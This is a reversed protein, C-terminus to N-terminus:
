MFTLIKLSTATYIHVHGQALILSTLHISVYKRENNQAYISHRGILLLAFHSSRYDVMLNILRFYNLQPRRRKNNLTKEVSM